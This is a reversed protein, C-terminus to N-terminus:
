VKFTYVGSETCATISCCQGITGVALRVTGGEVAVGVTCLRRLVPMQVGALVDAARVGGEKVLYAKVWDKLESCVSMRRLEPTTLVEFLAQMIPGIHFTKAFFVLGANHARAARVRAIDALRAQETQALAALRAQERGRARGDATVKRSLAGLGSGLSVMQEPTSEASLSATVEAAPAM